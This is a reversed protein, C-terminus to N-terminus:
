LHGTAATPYSRTTKGALTHEVLFGSSDLATFCGAAFVLFDFIYLLQITSCGATNCMVVIEKIETIYGLM